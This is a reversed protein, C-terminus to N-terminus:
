KSFKRIACVTAIAIGLVALAGGVAIGEGDTLPRSPTIPQPPNERSRIIIIDDGGGAIDKLEKESLLEAQKKSKLLEQYEEKSLETKYKKFLDLCKAEDNIVSSLEEMFKPNQALEKAKETSLNM